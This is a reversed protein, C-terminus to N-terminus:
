YRQQEHSVTGVQLAGRNLPCSHELYPVICNWNPNLKRTQLETKELKRHGQKYNHTTNLSM